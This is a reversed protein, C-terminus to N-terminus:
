SLAFLAELLWRNEDTDMEVGVMLEHDFLDDESWAVITLNHPVEDFALDYEFSFLHDDWAIDEGLTWPVIQRTHRLIQVHVVGSCGPPFGILIRKLRGPVLAIEDKLPNDPTNITLVNITKQYYM